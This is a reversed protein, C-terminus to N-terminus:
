PQGGFFIIVVSLTHCNVFQGFNEMNKVTTSWLFSTMFHEFEQPHRTTYSCLKCYIYAQQTIQSFHLRQLM